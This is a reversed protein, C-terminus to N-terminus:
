IAKIPHFLIELHKRLRHPMKIHPQLVSFKIPIFNNKLPANKVSNARKKYKKCCKKKGFYYKEMEIPLGIPYSIYSPTIISNM